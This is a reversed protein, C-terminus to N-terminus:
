AHHCSATVTVSRGDENTDVTEELWWAKVAECDDHHAQHAMKPAMFTPPVEKFLFSTTVQLGCEYSVSSASWEAFDSHCIELDLYEKVIM